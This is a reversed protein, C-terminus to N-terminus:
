TKLWVIADFVCSLMSCGFVVVLADVVYLMVDPVTSSHEESGRAKTNSIVQRCCGRCLQMALNRVFNLSVFEKCTLELFAVQWYEQIV